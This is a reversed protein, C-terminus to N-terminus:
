VRKPPKANNEILASSITHSVPLVLDGSCSQVGKAQSLFVPRYTEVGNILIRVYHSIPDVERVPSSDEPLRDASRLSSPLTSKASLLAEDLMMDLVESPPGGDPSGSVDIGVGVLAVGHLTKGRAVVKSSSSKRDSSTSRTVSFSNVSYHSSLEGKSTRTSVHSKHSM